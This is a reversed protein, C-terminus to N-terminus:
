YGGAGLTLGGKRNGWQVDGKWDLTNHSGGRPQRRSQIRGRRKRIFNVVRVDRESGYLASQAGRVGRDARIGSPLSSVDFQGNSPREPFGDIM